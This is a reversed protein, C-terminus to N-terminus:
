PRSGLLRLAEAYDPKVALAAAWADRAQRREGLASYEKGAETLARARAEPDKATSAAIRFREAARAHDGSESYLVGLTFPAEPEGGVPGDREILMVAQAIRGELILSLAELYWPRELDIGRAKLQRYGEAADAFREVSAMSTLAWIQVYPDDPFANALELAKAFRSQLPNLRFGIEADLVATRPDTGSEARSRLEERGQLERGTRALYSARARLAEPDSPFEAVMRDYWFDAREPTEELSALASYIKWSYAPNSLVLEMFYERAWERQGLLLAADAQRKLGPGSTVRESNSLLSSLIGVDWALDPDPVAGLEVARRLIWAAGERDGSRMRLLAADIAPEGRGSAEAVRLLAEEDEMSFSRGSRRADELFAEAFWSPHLAPDLVVPFLALADGPRGSDLYARCAALAIYEYTPYTKRAKDAIMAALNPNGMREAARFARSLLRLWDESSRAQRSGADLLRGLRSSESDGADLSRLTREFGAGPDCSAFLAALALIPILSRAGAGLREPLRPSRKGSRM